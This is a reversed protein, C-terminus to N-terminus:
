PSFPENSQPHQFNLCCVSPGSLNGTFAAYFGQFFYRKLPPVAVDVADPRFRRHHQWGAV